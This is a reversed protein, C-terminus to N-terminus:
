SVSRPRGALTGRAVPARSGATRPAIAGYRRSLKSEFTSVSHRMDGYSDIGASRRGNGDDRLVAFHQARAGAAACVRAYGTGFAGRIRNRGRNQRREVA